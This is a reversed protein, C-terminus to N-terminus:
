SIVEEYFVLYVSASNFVNEGCPIVFRDYRHLWRGSTHDKVIATYHGNVITGVHNVLEKLIFKNYVLSGDASELPFCFSTIM